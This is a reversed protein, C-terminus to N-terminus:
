IEAVITPLSVASDNSAAKDNIRTSASLKLVFESLFVQKPILNIQSQINMFPCFFIHSINEPLTLGFILYTLQIFFMQM